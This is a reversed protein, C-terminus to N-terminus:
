TIHRHIGFKVKSALDHLGREYFHVFCPGKIALVHDGCPGELQDKRFRLWQAWPHEMDLNVYTAKEQLGREQFHGFYPGKHGFYPGKHGFCPGWMTRLILEEQITILTGLSTGHWIECQQTYGAAGKGLFPWFMPRKHGFCPGWMTRWISEEQINIM